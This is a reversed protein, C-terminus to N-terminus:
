AEDNNNLADSRDVRKLLSDISKKIKCTDNVLACSMTTLHM